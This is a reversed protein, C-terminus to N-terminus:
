LVKSDVDCLAVLRVKEGKKRLGEISSIHSGGQGNFGVVAVRIEDNAGLTRAYFPAPSSAAPTAPSTACGTLKPLLGATAATAISGKLFARRNISKM